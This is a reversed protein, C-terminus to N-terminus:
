KERSPDWPLLPLPEHDECTDRFPQPGQLSPGVTDKCCPPRHRRHRSETIWPPLTAHASSLMPQIQGFKPSFWESNSGLPHWLCPFLPVAPTPTAPLHTYILELIQSNLSRVLKEWKEQGYCALMKWKGGGVNYWLSKSSEKKKGRCIYWYLEWNPNCTGSLKNTTQLLHETHKILVLTYQDELIWKSSEAEM